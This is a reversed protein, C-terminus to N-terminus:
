TAALSAVGVGSGLVLVGSGAAVGVDASDAVAPGLGVCPSVAVKVGVGVLVSTGVEVGVLRGWCSGTSVIVAGSSKRSPTGV